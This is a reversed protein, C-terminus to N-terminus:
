RVSKRTLRHLAFIAAFYFGGLSLFVPRYGFTTIVYGPVIASFIIGGLGGVCSGIGVASGVARPPFADSVTTFLNASLGQHAAMALSFLLIAVNTNPVIVGLAGVPSLCACVLMAAKRARLTPWGRRILLGSFWGGAVSGVTTVSYIFALAWGVQTMELKRNDHLYLPLWFLYFWWVPDSFFKGLAFGWTEPSRAAEAWSIQNEALATSTHVAAKPYIRWWAAVWVLGLSATMLFCARWGYLASVYVFAPPGLMAAVNTGSNFVGTAFARDKGEFWEAITRIAAPFNCAESLGLGVRWVSLQLTTRALVHLGATASWGLTAIAYAVRVGFRDVFGGMFLFGVMYAAQFAGQLFGYDKDTIHLEQRIIPMLIGLVIRDLYNIMTAFFLMALIIWRLLPQELSHDM